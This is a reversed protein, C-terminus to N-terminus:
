QFQWRSEYHGQLTDELIIKSRKEVYNTKNVMDSKLQMITTADIPKELMESLSEVAQELNAQNDEFITTTNCRQLYFAMAYTWKLTMRADLLIDAARKVFQVEIWTLESSAQMEEMKQEISQYLRQDLKASQEHNAWRNFYHLYRALSTRSKEQASRAEQGAKEEFRNCNYWSTGHAMWDGMCVWCFEHKCKRCTMHNCGGNKEITSNCKICEKTNAILWNGTESDDACKKEWLKVWKCTLPRHDRALGCGFCFKNGCGCEVTPIIQDLKRAPVDKCFVAYECEPHPCWRLSTNDDVYTRNLLTRYRDAVKEPVLQFVTREGAIRGCGSEMCQINGSEQEDMIKGELYSTWCENCFRHECGLSLTEKEIDSPVIELCCIPCEFPEVYLSSQTKSSSAVANGERPLSQLSAKPSSPPTLGAANMAKAPDEWYTETLKESNWKYHRLLTAATSPDSEILNAVKDVMAKQEAQLEDISKAKYKPEWPMQSAAKTQSQDFADYVEGEDPVSTVSFDDGDMGEDEFEFDEYPVEDEDSSMKTQSALVHGSASEEEPFPSESKM